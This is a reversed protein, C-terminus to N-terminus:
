RDRARSRAVRRRFERDLADKLLMEIYTQCDIGKKAALGQVREIDAVAIRITIPKSERPGHLVRAPGGRRATGSKIAEVLNQEVTTMRDDWWKAEQAESAFKPVILKKM